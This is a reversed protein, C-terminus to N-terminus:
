FGSPNDLFRRKSPSQAEKWDKYLEQLKYRIFEVESFNISAVVMDPFFVDALKKLKKFNESPLNKDLVLLEFAGSGAMEIAHEIDTELRYDINENESIIARVAVADTQLAALVLVQLKKLSM